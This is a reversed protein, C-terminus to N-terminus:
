AIKTRTSALLFKFTSTIGHVQSTEASLSDIYLQGTHSLYNPLLHTLLPQHVPPAPLPVVCTDSSALITRNLDQEANRPSHWPALKSNEKHEVLVLQYSQIVPKDPMEEYNCAAGNDLAAQQATASCKIATANAEVTM